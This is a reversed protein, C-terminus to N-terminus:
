GGLAITIAVLVCGLVVMSASMWWPSLGSARGYAFGIFALMAVAVLNSIRMAASLDQMFMFPVIVPLTSGVVILFVSFAGRLDDGHLRPKRGAVPMKAIRERIRDLLDPHLEEAVPQPVNDRIVAHAHERTRATLISLLTQREVGRRNLSGMLYMIADILGWAINCGIAGILMARTEARDATAVSFSGTFTLVMILGFLIESLREVPDLVSKAPKEAVDMTM